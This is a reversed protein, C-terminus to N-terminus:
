KFYPDVVIKNYIKGCTLIFSFLEDCKLYTLVVFLVNKSLKHVLLEQGPRAKSKSDTLGKGANQTLSSFFDCNLFELKNADFPNSILLQLSPNSM